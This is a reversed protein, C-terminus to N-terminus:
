KCTQARQNCSRDLESKLTLEQIKPVPFPRAHCPQVEDKLKIDHPKGTSAGLTGNFLEKCKKLVALLLKQKNNALHNASSASKDLDAKKYKADLVDTMQQMEQETPQYSQCDEIAFMDHVTSDIKRWAPIAPDDWKISMNSAAKSM